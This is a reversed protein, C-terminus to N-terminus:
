PLFQFGEEEPYADTILLTAVANAVANPISISLKGFPRGIFGQGPFFPFPDTDTDITISLQDTNNTSSWYTLVSGAYQVLGGVPNIPGANDLPIDLRRFTRPRYGPLNLQPGQTGAGLPQIVGLPKPMHPKTAKQTNFVPSSM